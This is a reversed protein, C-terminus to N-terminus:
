KKGVFGYVYEVDKVIEGPIAKKQVFGPLVGKADSLLAMVWHNVAKDQSSKKERSVKEVSAYQGYVLKKGM